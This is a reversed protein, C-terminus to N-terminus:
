VENRCAVISYTGFKFFRMHGGGRARVCVCVCVCMREREREKEVVGTMQEQMYIVLLSTMCDQYLVSCSIGAFSSIYADYSRSLVPVQIDIPSTLSFQIGFHLSTWLLLALVVSGCAMKVGGAVSYVTQNNQLIFVCV